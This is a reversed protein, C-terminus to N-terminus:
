ANEGGPKEMAADIMALFEQRWERRPDEAPNAAYVRLDADLVNQIAARIRERTRREIEEDPLGTDPTKGMAALAADALEVTSKAIDPASWGRGAAYKHQIEHEFAIKVLAFREERAVDKQIITAYEIHLPATM